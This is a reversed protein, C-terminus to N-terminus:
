AAETELKDLSNFLDLDCDIQAMVRGIWVVCRAHPAVPKGAAHEHLMAFSVPFRDTTNTHRLLMETNLQRNYGREEAIESALILQSQTFYPRM